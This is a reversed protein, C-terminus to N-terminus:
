LFTRAAAVAAAADVENTSDCADARVGAKATRRLLATTATVNGKLQPSVSWMLAVVGAVHPAAMSTGSLPGYSNGPLASVVDVGPAVVDPKNAVGSVPGRSSFDAVSGNRDIAGVTFVDPSSAPPDAISACNPGTNGAAFVPYVGAISLARVATALTDPQCGELKTCGWSNNLVDAGRAPNGHFADSERPFPALMYQLCDLYYGPNAIGRALNACGIWRAEPAVGIGSRGVAIATTHTGHGGPDTPTATGFWPDYWSDAGGRFGAALAPHTVDVGSDSEGVVIGQGRAGTAWAKDAGIATINWPLTEPLTKNGHLPEPLAPIPRLIPADTISVVGPRASLWARTFPDDAYVEIANTLYYPRFTLGRETLAARLPRQSAEAYTTLKRYVERRRGAPDQIAAAANVTTQALAVFLANGHFGPRQTIGATLVAALCALAALGALWQRPKIRTRALISGVGVLVAVLWGIGTAIAAYWSVEGLGLVVALQSADVYAFPGVLALGLTVTGVWRGGIAVVVFGFAPLLIMVMLALGSPAATAAVMAYGVGLVAGPMEEGPMVVLLGAVAAAAVVALVTTWVSGLAGLAMWPLLGVGGAAVSLLIKQGYRRTVPPPPGYRPTVPPRRRFLLIAGTLLVALVITSGLALTNRAAIDHDYPVLRTLGLVAACAAALSWFRLSARLWPQRVLPIASIAPLAALVAAGSAIAPMLWSSPHVELVIAAQEVLWEGAAGGFSVIVAWGGILVAALVAPWRRESESM